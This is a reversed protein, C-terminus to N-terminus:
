RREEEEEERADKKGTSVQEKRKRKEFIALSTVSVYTPGLEVMGSALTARM